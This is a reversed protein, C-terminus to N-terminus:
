NKHCIWFLVVAMKMSYIIDGFLDRITIINLLVTFYSLVMIELPMDM